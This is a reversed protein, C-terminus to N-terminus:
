ANNDEVIIPKLKGNELIMEIKKGEKRANVILEAQKKKEELEEQSKAKASEELELFEKFGDETKDWKETNESNVVKAFMIFYHEKHALFSNYLSTLIEIHKLDRITEIAKEGNKIMTDIGKRDKGRKSLSKQFKLIAIETELFKSFLDKLYEIQKM